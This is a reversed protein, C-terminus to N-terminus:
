ECEMLTPVNEEKTKVENKWMDCIYICNVQYVSLCIIQFTEASTTRIVDTAQRAQKRKFFYLRPIKRSAHSVAHIVHATLHTMNIKIRRWEHLNHSHTPLSQTCSCIYVTLVLLIWRLLM